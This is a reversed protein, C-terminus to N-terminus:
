VQHKHRQVLQHVAPAHSSRSLAQVREARASESLGREPLMMNSVSAETMAERTDMRPLSPSTGSDSCVKACASALAFSCSALDSSEHAICQQLVAGARACQGTAQARGLCRECQAPGLKCSEGYEERETFRQLVIQRCQSARAAFGDHTHQALSFACQRMWLREEM